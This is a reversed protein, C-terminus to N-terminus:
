QNWAIWEVRVSLSLFFFTFLIKWCLFHYFNLSISKWGSHNPTHTRTHTHIKKMREGMELTISDIQIKWQWTQRCTFQSWQQAADIAHFIDYKQWRRKKLKDIKYILISFSHQSQSAYFLTSFRRSSRQVAIKRQFHFRKQTHTNFM